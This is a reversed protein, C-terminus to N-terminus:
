IDEDEQDEDDEYDEWDAGQPVLSTFGDNPNEENTEVAQVFRLSCSEDYWKVIMDYMEQPSGTFNRDDCSVGNYNDRFWQAQGEDMAVYIKHCGDFAILKATETAHRVDEFLETLTANM